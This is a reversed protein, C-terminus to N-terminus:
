SVPLTPEIRSTHAYGPKHDEEFDAQCAFGANHVTTPNDRGGNKGSWCFAPKPISRVMSLRRCNPRLASQGSHPMPDAAETLPPGGCLGFQAVPEPRSCVDNSHSTVGGAASWSAGNRRLCKSTRKGRFGDTAHADADPAFAGLFSLPLDTLPVASRSSKTSSQERGPSVLKTPAPLNAPETGFDANKVLCSGPCEM